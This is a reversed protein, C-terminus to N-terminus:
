VITEKARNLPKIPLLSEYPNMDKEKHGARENPRPVKRRSQGQSRCLADGFSIATNKKDAVGFDSAEDDNARDFHPICPIARYLRNGSVGRKQLHQRLEWHSFGFRWASRNSVTSTEGLPRGLRFGSNLLPQQKRLVEFLIRGGFCLCTLQSHFIGRCTYM